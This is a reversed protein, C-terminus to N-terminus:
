KHSRDGTISGPVAGNGGNTAPFVDDLRERDFGEHGVNSSLGDLVLFSPLTLGYDIAVTHHALAHAVNVLVTLGQSSLEDFPRSSIEPLYTNRNISATLPFTSVSVHLRRLYSLFRLELKEVLWDSQQSQTASRALSDILDTREEELQVRLRDRDLFRLFLNRYEHLKLQEARLRARESAYSTMTDSHASVFDRTRRHLEEHLADLRRQHLELRRQAVAIEHSRNDILDQTEASQSAILEQEKVLESHFDRQQPQQFCLYCLDQKSRSAEVGTGCRPCVIFDFDVLWEGAVIARTLRQSQARLTTHLDQLDRLNKQAANLRQEQENLGVEVDSIQRRIDLSASEEHADVALQRSKQDLETLSSQAEELARDIEELSSLSTEQLFSRVAEITLDLKELRLETSRLAAQRKAVEPDYIGYTLEFVARRKRDIFPDKHGFVSTDLEEDRVICYRLWDNITVPTPPSTVRTRARPVSVEPIGVKDLIWSQYTLSENKTSVIAPLRLTDLITDAFARPMGVKHDLSSGERRSLSVISNKTVVLPRDIVWEQSAFRVRGQVSRIAHTEPPLSKPVRGLMAKILKVLTTKGSAISGTVVSFGSHFNVERNGGVLHLSDLQLRHNDVPSGTRM